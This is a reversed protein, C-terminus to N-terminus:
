VDEGSAVEILVQADAGLHKKLDEAINERVEAEIELPAIDDNVTVLATLQPRQFLAAPLRVSLKVPVEGCQLSPATKTVRCTLERYSRGNPGFVLYFDGTFPSNSMDNGDIVFQNM